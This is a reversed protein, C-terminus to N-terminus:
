RPPLSRRRVSGGGYWCAAAPGELADSVARVSAAVPAPAEHGIGSGKTWDVPLMACLAPNAPLSAWLQRDAFAAPSAAGGDLLARTEWRGDGFDFRLAELAPFFRQYGFSFWHARVALTHRPGEDELSLSKRWVARPAVRASLLGGVVDGAAPVVANEADLLLGPSSLVVVREGRASVLLTRHSGYELAYVDTAEGDVTVTGAQKLHGDKFAIAAAEHVVKALEPRTMAMAWDDLSGAAGHWLALEAPQDLAWALVEDGFRLDHEFAIRRIAGSLGLRDPHEEYYFALDETLVDRALPVKLLDRPLASLSETRVLADPRALDVDRQAVSEDWRAWGTTRYLLLGASPVLLLLTLNLFRRKRSM